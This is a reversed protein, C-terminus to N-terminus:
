NKTKQDKLRNKLLDIGRKVWVVNDGVTSSMSSKKSQRRSVDGKKQGTKLFLPNTMGGREDGGKPDFVKPSRVKQSGIGDPTSSRGGGGWQGRSTERKPQRKKWYKEGRSIGGPLRRPVGIIQEKGARERGGRGVNDLSM